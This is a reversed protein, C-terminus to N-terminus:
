QVGSIPKSSFGRLETVTRWSSAGDVPAPIVGTVFEGDLPVLGMNKM